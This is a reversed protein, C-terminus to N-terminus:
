RYESQLGDDPVDPIEITFWPRTGATAPIFHVQSPLITHFYRQQIPETLQPVKDFGHNSGPQAAIVWPILYWWAQACLTKGPTTGHMSPNVTDTSRRMLPSWPANPTKPAALSPAPQSAQSASIRRDKGQIRAIGLIRSHESRSIHNKGHVGCVVEPMEQAFAPSTPPYQLYPLYPYFYTSRLGM